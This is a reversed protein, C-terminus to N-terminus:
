GDPVLNTIQVCRKTTVTSPSVWIREASTYQYGCASPTVLIGLTAQRLGLPPPNLWACLLFLGVFRRGFADIISVNTKYVNVVWLLTLFITVTLLATGPVSIDM